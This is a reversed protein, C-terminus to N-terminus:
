LQDFLDTADHAQCYIKPDFHVLHAWSLSEQRVAIWHLSMLVLTLLSMLSRDTVMAFLGERFRLSLAQDVATLRVMKVDLAEGGDVDVCVNAGADVDADIKIARPM